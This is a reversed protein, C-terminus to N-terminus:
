ARDAQKWHGCHRHDSDSPHRRPSGSSRFNGRGIPRVVDCLDCAHESRGPLNGVVIRPDGSHLGSDLRGTLLIWGIAGLYPPTVFAAFVMLRIFPKGPMDTRSIAWALPVAFCSALM